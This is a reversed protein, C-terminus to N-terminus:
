HKRCSQVESRLDRRSVAATKSTIKTRMKKNKQLRILGQMLDQASFKNGPNVPLRKFENDYFITEIEVGVRREIRPRLYSLITDLIKKNLTDTIKKM